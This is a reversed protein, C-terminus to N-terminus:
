PAFGDAVEGPGATAGPRVRDGAACRRHPLNPPAHHQRLAGGPRVSEPRAPRRATGTGRVGGPQRSSRGPADVPPERSPVPRVAYSALIRLRTGPDTPRHVADQRDAECRRGAPGEGPATETTGERRY